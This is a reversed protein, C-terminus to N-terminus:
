AGGPDQHALRLDGLDLLKLRVSRSSASRLPRSKVCLGHAHQM